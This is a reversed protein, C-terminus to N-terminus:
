LDLQHPGNPTGIVLSTGNLTFTWDRITVPSGPTLVKGPNPHYFGDFDNRGDAIERIDVVQSRVGVRPTKGMETIVGVTGGTVAVDGVALHTPDVIEGPEFGPELDTPSTFSITATWYPHDGDKFPRAPSACAASTNGVFCRVGTTGITVTDAVIRKTTVAVTRPSSTTPAPMVSAGGATAPHDGASCGTLATMVIAGLAAAAPGIRDLSAGPQPTFRFKM